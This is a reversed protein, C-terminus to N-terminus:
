SLLNSVIKIILWHSKGTYFFTVSLLLMNKTVFLRGAGRLAELPGTPTEVAVVEDVENGRKPKPLILLVLLGVIAVGSLTWIVVTRADKDITDLGKFKFFVFLNGIFM